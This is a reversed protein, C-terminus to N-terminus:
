KRMNAAQFFQRFQALENDRNPNPSGRRGRAGTFYAKMEDDAFIPRCQNRKAGILTRLESEAEEKTWVLFGQERFYNAANEIVARIEKLSPATSPLTHSMSKEPNVGPVAVREAYLYWQLNDGRRAVFSDFSLREVFIFSPRATIDQISRLRSPPQAYPGQHCFLFWDHAEDSTWELGPIEEFPTGGGIKQRFTKIEGEVFAKIMASVVTRIRAINKRQDAAIYKFYADLPPLIEGNTEAAAQAVDRLYLDEFSGVEISYEQGEAFKPLFLEKPENGSWNEAFSAIGLSAIARGLFIYEKTDVPWKTAMWFRIGEGRIEEIDELRAIEATTVIM